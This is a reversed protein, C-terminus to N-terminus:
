SCPKPYIWAWDFGTKKRDSRTYRALLALTGSHGASSRPIVPPWQRGFDKNSRALTALLTALFRLRLRFNLRLFTAIVGASAIPASAFRSTILAAPVEAGVPDSRTM